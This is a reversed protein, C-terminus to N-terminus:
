EDRKGRCEPLDPRASESGRLSKCFGVRAANLAHLCVRGIGTSSMKTEQGKASSANM